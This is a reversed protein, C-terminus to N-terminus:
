GADVLWAAVAHQAVDAGPPAPLRGDAGRPLSRCGRTTPPSRPASTPLRLGRDARGPLCGVKAPAMVLSCPRGGARRLADPHPRGRPTPAPPRPTDALTGYAPRTCTPGRWSCCRSSCTARAAPSRRWGGLDSPPRRGAHVALGGPAIDPDRDAQNPSRHHRNHKHTWWGYSLGLVSTSVLRSAWENAQPRHFVQRHAADHAFFGFQSLLVGWLAAVVLQWWRDGVLLTAALAAGAALTLVGMGYAYAGRRRRLLGDARVQASLAAFESAARPGRGRGAPGSADPTPDPPAEIPLQPLALSPGTRM